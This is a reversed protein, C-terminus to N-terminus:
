RRDEELVDDFFTRWVQPMTDLFTWAYAEHVAWGLRLIRYLAMFVSVRRNAACHVFLTKDQRAEMIEFFRELDAKTPQEWVPIHVYELGLSRVLRGEDELAYSSDSVDLNIVVEYGARAVAALEEQTPQGATAIRESLKRYDRIGSVISDDM